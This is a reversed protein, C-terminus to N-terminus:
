RRKKMEILQEDTNFCVLKDKRCRPCILEGEGKFYGLLKSCQPCRVPSM